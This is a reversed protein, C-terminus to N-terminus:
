CHEHTFHMTIEQVTSTSAVSMKGLAVSFRYLFRRENPFLRIYSNNKVVGQSFCTKFQIGILDVCSRLLSFFGESWCQEEM